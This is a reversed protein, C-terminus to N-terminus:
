DRSFSSNRLDLVTADAAQPIEGTNANRIEVIREDRIVIIVDKRVTKGTGDILGGAWIITSLQNEQADVEGALCTLIVILCRAIVARM